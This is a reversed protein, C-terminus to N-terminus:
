QEVVNVVAMQAVSGDITMTVGYSGAPWTESDVKALHFEVYGSRYAQTPVIARTASELPADNYTWSASLVAGQPVNAVRVVAYITQDATSFQEVPETPANTTSDVSSTWVIPEISASPIETSAPAAPATTTTPGVTPMSGPDEEGCAALLLAVSVLVCILMSRGRSKSRRAHEPLFAREMVLDCQVLPSGNRTADFKLARDFGRVPREERSTLEPRIIFSLLALAM